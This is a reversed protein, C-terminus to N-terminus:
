MARLKMYRAFSPAAVKLLAGPTAEGIYKRVNRNSLVLGAGFLMLALGGLLYLTEKDTSDEVAARM